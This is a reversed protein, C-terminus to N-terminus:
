AVPVFDSKCAGCMPCSWSDPIDEFATGPVIGGDPDGREPDYIFGCSQCVWRQPRPSTWTGELSLVGNMFNSLLMAPEAVRLDPMRNTFQRLISKVMQRGLAAGMCYHPGNGFSLNRNPSRLIDFRDPEPFAREDRNGSCYWLVVKDGAKITVGELDFDEVATRRFHMLPPSWRLLEEVASDIRGEFDELLRAKEDPHHQLNLVAHAMAHRSTDNAAGVLLTFFAGLEAETMHEGEHQAQVIWSMLNDDPEHRCRAAEERAIVMIRQAADQFVALPPGIHAYRPDAWAGLQEAGDILVERRHMDKLGVFVEAFVRGPLQKFVLECLDGSGLPAVEDVIQRAMADIQQEMRRINRPSFAAQTINRLAQHRPDDMVIFSLITELQPFDDLFVGEASSFVKPNRSIAKIDEYRVIAWFGKANELGPALPEPPRHWSVPDNDRLWRFAREREGYPRAWFELSSLDIDVNSAPFCSRSRRGSQFHRATEPEGRAAM